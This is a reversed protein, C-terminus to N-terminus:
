GAQSLTNGSAWTQAEDLSAFRDPYNRRYKMTKIIVWLFYVM